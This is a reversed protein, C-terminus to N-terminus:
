LTSETTTNPFFQQMLGKKKDKLTALKQTETIRDDLSSLCDAIKPQEEPLPAPLPMGMFDDNTIAMRDHRAGSNSFERLYKHWQTTRFYHECFANNSNNFRFVTYLPSMVGTGMNNKSIPGVPALTSMRPNYIYDGREVIFYGYLNIKNAIDKDFYDRQDVVGYEAYNTLVRTEKGETNKLTIRKALQKLKTEEWEGAELFEPFRLRPVNRMPKESM